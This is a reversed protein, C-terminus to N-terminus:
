FDLLWNEGPQSVRLEMGDKAKPGFQDWAGQNGRTMRNEAFRPKPHSAESRKLRPRGSAM